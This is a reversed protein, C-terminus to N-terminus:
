APRAANEDELQWEALRAEAYRLGIKARALAATSLDLKIKAAKVRRSFYRETLFMITPAYVILSCGLITQLHNTPKSLILCGGTFALVATLAATV